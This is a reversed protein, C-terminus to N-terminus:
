MFFIVPTAVMYTIFNSGMESFSGGRVEIEKLIWKASREFVM